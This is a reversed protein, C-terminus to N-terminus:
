RPPIWATVLRAVAFDPSQGGGLGKARLAEVPM